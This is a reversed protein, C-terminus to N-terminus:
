RYKRDNHLRDSVTLWADGFSSMSFIDANPSKVIFTDPPM